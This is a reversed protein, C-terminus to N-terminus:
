LGYKGGMQWGNSWEWDDGLGYGHMTYISVNPTFQHYINGYIGYMSGIPHLELFTGHFVAAGFPRETAFQGPLASPDTSAPSPIATSNWSVGSIQSNHLETVWL